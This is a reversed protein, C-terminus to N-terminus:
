SQSKSYFDPLVDSNLTGAFIIIYLLCYITYIKNRYIKAELRKYWVVCAEDNQMCSGSSHIVTDIGIDKNLEMVILVRDNGIGM